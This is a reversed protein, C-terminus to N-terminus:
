PRLKADKVAVLNRAAVAHAATNVMAKAHPKLHALNTTLVDLVPKAKLQWPEIGLM